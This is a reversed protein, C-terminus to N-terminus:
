ITVCRTCIKIIIPFKCEIPITNVIFTAHTYFYILFIKHCYNVFAMVDHVYTTKVDDTKKIIFIITKRSIINNTCVCVCMQISNHHQIILIRILSLAIQQFTRHVKTPLYHLLLNNIRFRIRKKKKFNKHFVSAITYFYCVIYWVFSVTNHYINEM